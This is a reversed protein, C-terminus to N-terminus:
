RAPESTARVAAAQITVRAGEVAAHEPVAHEMVRVGARVEVPAAAVAVAVAAAATVARHNAVIRARTAVPTRARIAM